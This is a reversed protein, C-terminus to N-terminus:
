SLRDFQSSSKTLNQLYINPIQCNNLAKADRWKSTGINGRSSITFFMNSLHLDSNQIKKENFPVEFDQGAQM